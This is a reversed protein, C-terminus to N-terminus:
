RVRVVVEEEPSPRYMKLQKKVLSEIRNHETLASQELVLNRWEVDLRDREAMLKEHNITLERNKHTSLVVVIASTLVLLFLLVRLPHRTLDTLVIAALNFSTKPETM